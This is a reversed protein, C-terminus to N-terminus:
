MQSASSCLPATTSKAATTRGPALWCDSQVKSGASEVDKLASAELVTSHSSKPNPPLLEQSSQIPLAHGKLSSEFVRGRNFTKFDSAACGFQASPFCPLLAVYTKSGSAPWAHKTCLWPLQLEVWFVNFIILPTKQYSRSRTAAETNARPGFNLPFSRTWCCWGAHPQIIRSALSILLMRTNCIYKSIYQPINPYVQMVSQAEFQCSVSQCVESMHVRDWIETVDTLTSSLRPWRIAIASVSGDFYWSMEPCRLVLNLMTRMTPKYIKINAWVALILHFMSHSVIHNLFHLCIGSIGESVSWLRKVFVECVCGHCHLQLM